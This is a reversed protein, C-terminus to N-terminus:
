KARKVFSKPTIKKGSLGGEPEEKAEYKHKSFKHKGGGFSKEFPRKGSPTDPRGVERAVDLCIVVDLLKIM